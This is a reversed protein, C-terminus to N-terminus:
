WGWEPKKGGDYPKAHGAAIMLEAVSVLKGVEESEIFIDAVIRGAYKGLKPNRLVFSDQNATILDSLAEQAVLAAAKERALSTETRGAKRPRKEPTDIGNIRVDIITYLNEGKLLIGPWLVESKFTADPFTKLEIAVDQITDGDYVRSDESMVVTYSKEALASPSEGQSLVLGTSIGSLIILYMGYLLWGIRKRLM